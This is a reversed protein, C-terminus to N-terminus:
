VQCIGAEKILDGLGDMELMLGHLLTLAKIRVKERGAVEDALASALVALGGQALFEQQGNHSNRLLSSLAYLARAAVRADGDLHVLRLLM